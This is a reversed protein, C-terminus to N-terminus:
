TNVNQLEKLPKCDSVSLGILLKDEKVKKTAGHDIAVIEERDGEEDEYHRCRIVREERGSLGQFIIEYDCSRLTRVVQGALHGSTIYLTDKMQKPEIGSLIGNYPVFVRLGTVFGKLPQLPGNGMRWLYCESELISFYRIDDAIEKANLTNYNFIRFTDHTANHHFYITAGKPIYESDIVEGQSIHTYNKDFRETNRQLAIKTGNSFTYSDKENMKVKTIVRGAAAKLESM